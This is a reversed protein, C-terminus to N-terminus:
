VSYPTTSVMPEFKFHLLRTEDDIIHPQQQCISITESPGFCSTCGTVSADCLDSWSLTRDEIPTHSVYMWRGCHGKGGIGALPSGDEKRQSGSHIDEEQKRLEDSPETGKKIGELFVAIRGACSSTTAVGDLKNLQRVLALIEDDIYGKPSADHSNLM